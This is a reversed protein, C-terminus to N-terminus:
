ILKNPSLRLSNKNFIKRWLAKQAKKSYSFSKFSLKSIRSTPREKISFSKKSSKFTISKTKTKHTSKISSRKFRKNSPIKLTNPSMRKQIMNLIIKRVSRVSSIEMLSATDPWNWGKTIRAHSCNKKSFLSLRMESRIINQKFIIIQMKSKSISIIQNKANRALILSGDM